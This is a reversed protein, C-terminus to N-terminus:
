GTCPNYIIQHLHNTGLYWNFSSHILNLYLPDDFEKYFWELALIAYAFEIPQEGFPKKEQGEYHRGTNLIISIHENDNMISLLFDFTRKATEKYLARQTCRSALLMADPLVANGYTLYPEYWQWNENSIGRYKSILNDVLRTITKLIEPDKRFQYYFYLGEICFAIARPSQLQNIIPIAKRFVVEVQVLSHSNILRPLSLFEGLAWIARGNADELNEDKNKEFFEKNITVYNL